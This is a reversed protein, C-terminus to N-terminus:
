GVTQLGAAIGNVTLRLADRVREREPGASRRLRALLEVQVHSLVDVYPNRRAAARSVAPWPTMLGADLTLERVRAVTLAHEERILDFLGRDGADALRAYHAAVDLDGYDRVALDQLDCDADLDYTTFRALAARM